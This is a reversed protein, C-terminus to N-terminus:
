VAPCPMVRAEVVKERLVEKEPVASSIMPVAEPRM